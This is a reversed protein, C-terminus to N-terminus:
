QSGVIECCLGLDMIHCLQVETLQRELEDGTGSGKVGEQEEKDVGCVSKDCARWIQQEVWWFLEEALVQM